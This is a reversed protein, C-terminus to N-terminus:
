YKLSSKGVWKNLSSKLKSTVKEEPAKADCTPLSGKIQSIYVRETRM